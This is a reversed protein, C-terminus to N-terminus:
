PNLTQLDLQKEQRQRERLLSLYAATKSKRKLTASQEAWHIAQELQNQFEYAIAMNYTIQSKTKKQRNKRCSLLMNEWIDFARVYAENQMATYARQSLEPFKNVMYINRAGTQWQPAIREAYNKAIAIGMDWWADKVDPLHEVAELKGTQIGSSWDLINRDTYEDIVAGSRNRVSWKAAYQAFLYAEWVDYAYQQGYYANNIQLRDLLVLMDFGSGDLIEETKIIHVSFQTNEYGPAKEWHQQLSFLINAILSDTPVDTATENNMIAESLLIESACIAVNQKSGEFTLEAPQLTEIPCYRMTACAPLFLPM